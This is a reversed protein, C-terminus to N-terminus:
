KELWRSMAQLFHNSGELHDSEGARTMFCQAGFLVAQVNKKEWLIKMSMLFYNLVTKNDGSKQEDQFTPKKM